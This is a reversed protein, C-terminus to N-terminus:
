VFHAEVEVRMLLNGGERNALLLHDLDGLRHGEAGRDEEEVFGGRGQGRTLDVEKEGKDAAQAFAPHRDEVDGVPHVLQELDGVGAGDKAVPDKGPRDVHRLGGGVADDLHHEAFGGLRFAGGAASDVARARRKQVHLTQRPVPHELVDAELDVGALDEADRAQKPRAAGFDEAGDEPGIRHIRAADGDGAAAVLARAELRHFLRAEAVRGLVPFLRAEDLDERGM